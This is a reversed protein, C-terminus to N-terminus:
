QISSLEKAMIQSFGSLLQNLINVYTAYNEDPAKKNLVTERSLLVKKNQDMLQWNVRLVCEGGLQGFFEQIHIVVRYNAQKRQSSSISVFEAQPLQHRMLTLLSEYTIERLDGAWLQTDSIILTSRDDGHSVIAQRKLIEPIQVPAMMYVTNTDYQHLSKTDAVLHYYEVPPSTSSACGAAMIVILTFWIANVFQM